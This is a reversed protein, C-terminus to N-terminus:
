RDPWFVWELLAFLAWAAAIVVVVTRPRQDTLALVVGLGILLIAEVVFKPGLRPM